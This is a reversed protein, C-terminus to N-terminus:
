NDSIVSDASAAKDASPPPSPNEQAAGAGPATSADDRADTRPREETARVTRNYVCHFTSEGGDGGWGAPGDPSGAAQLGASVDPLDAVAAPRHDGEAWLAGVAYADALPAPALQGILQSLQTMASEMRCVPRDGICLSHWFIAGERSLM